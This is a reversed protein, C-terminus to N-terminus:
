FDYGQEEMKKKLARRLRHLRQRVAPYSKNLIRAVEQLPLDSFYHLVVLQRDLPSLSDIANWLARSREDRLYLSEPTAQTFASGTALAKYEEERTRAQKARRFYDILLNKCVRLLWPLFSTVDAPLGTYARVFAEAVIDEALDPDRCLSVTYLLAAHYYRRYLDEILEREM